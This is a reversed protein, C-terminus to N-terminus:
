PVPAAASKAMPMMKKDAMKAECAKREKVLQEILDAMVAVKADGTSAHMKAILDEVNGAPAPPSAAQHASHDEGSRAQQASAAVPTVTLLGAVALTVVSLSRMRRKM